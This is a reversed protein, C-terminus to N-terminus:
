NFRGTYGVCGFFTSAASQFFSSIWGIGTNEYYYEKAKIVEDTTRKFWEMTRSDIYSEDSDLDRCCHAEFLKELCGSLEDLSEGDEFRDCWYQMTPTTAHINTTAM